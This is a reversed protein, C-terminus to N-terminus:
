RVVRVLVAKVAVRQRYSDSKEDYGRCTLLTVWSEDKHEFAKTVDNPKLYEVSRVEYIYTQGYAHVLIRDGWKLKTIEVFPGPLGSPLYVHGTLVSNGSHTPFASGDLYGADRGLWSVDWEGEVKPVGVIDMKVKKSPIELWLDSQATYLKEKPQLDLRTVRGPAFGTDPLLVSAQWTADATAVIQEGPDAVDGDGNLDSDM